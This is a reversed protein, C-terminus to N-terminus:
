QEYPMEGSEALPIITAWIDRRGPALSLAAGLLELRAELTAPRPEPLSAGEIAPPKPPYGRAGELEGLRRVADTLAVAAEVRARDAEILNLTLKVAAESIQLGTHPEIVTGRVDTYDPWRAESFDWRYGARGGRRLFG